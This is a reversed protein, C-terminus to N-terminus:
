RWALVGQLDESKVAAMRKDLEAQNKTDEGLKLVEKWNKVGKEEEFIYIEKLSAVKDKIDNVKHFLDMDSVFCYKVGCDNFIYEYDERSITPYVPVNVAGTQLIGIDMVNWEWRNTSSILAVKDQPQIGMEILARSIKDARLVFEETSVPTWKGDIKNVLADERPTNELQYRPIDFLRSVTVM